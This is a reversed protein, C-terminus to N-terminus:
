LPLPLVYVLIYTIVMTYGEDYAQNSFGIYIRFLRVIAEVKIGCM